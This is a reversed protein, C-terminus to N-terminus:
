VYHLALCFVVFYWALHSASMNLVKCTKAASPLLFSTFFWVKSNVKHLVLEFKIFFVCKVPRQSQTDYRATPFSGLYIAIHFNCSPTYARSILNLEACQVQLLFACGYMREEISIRVTVHASGDWSQESCGNAPESSSYPFKTTALKM